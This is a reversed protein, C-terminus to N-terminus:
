PQTARRLRRALVAALEPQESVAAMFTLNRFRQRREAGGRRTSGEPDADQLASMDSRGSNTILKPPATRVARCANRRAAAKTALWSASSGPRWNTTTTDASYPRVSA